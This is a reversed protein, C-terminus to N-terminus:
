ETKRRESDTDAVPVGAETMSVGRKHESKKLMKDMERYSLRAYGEETPTTPSIPQEPPPAGKGRSSGGPLPPAPVACSPVFPAPQVTSYRRRFTASFSALSHLVRDRRSRKKAQAAAEDAKDKAVDDKVIDLAVVQAVMAEAPVTNLWHLDYATQVMAKLCGDALTLATSEDRASDFDPFLNATSSPMFETANPPIVRAGGGDGRRRSSPTITSLAAGGKSGCELTFPSRADRLEASLATAAIRRQAMKTMKWVLLFADGINKNPSGEFWETNSHVVHGVLNM